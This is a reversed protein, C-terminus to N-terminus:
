GASVPWAMPLAVDLLGGVAQVEEAAEIHHEVPQVVQLGPAVDIPQAM